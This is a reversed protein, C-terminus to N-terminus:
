RNKKEAVKQLRCPTLKEERRGAGGGGGDGMTGMKKQTPETENNFDQGEWSQM